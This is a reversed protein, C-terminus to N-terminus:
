VRQGQLARVTKLSRTRFTLFRGQTTARSVACGLETKSARRSAQQALLLGGVGGCADPSGTERGWGQRGAGAAPGPPCLEGSGPRHWGRVKCGAPPRARRGPCHKYEERQVATEAQRGSFSSNHIGEAEFSMDTRINPIRHGWM